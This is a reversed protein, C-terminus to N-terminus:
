AVGTYSPCIVHRLKNPRSPFSGDSVMVAFRGGADQLGQSGTELEPIDM